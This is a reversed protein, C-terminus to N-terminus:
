RFEDPNFNPSGQRPRRAEEPRDPRPRPGAVNALEKLQDDTWRRAKPDFYMELKRVQGSLVVAGKLKGKYKDLDAATAAEVLVVPANVPKKLSPSWAKPYGILPITQPEVIQASFRQLTWGRGFPGWPELHANYLGWKTMQDKTWENARKAYPSCTLRPGIVDSLYSLTQMVQSRNLGEDKIKDVVESQAVAFAPLTLIFFIVLLRCCKM